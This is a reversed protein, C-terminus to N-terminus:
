KSEGLIDPANQVEFAVFALATSILVIYGTFAALDATKTPATRQCAPILADPDIGNGADPPILAGNSTRCAAALRTALEDVFESESAPDTTYFRVLNVAWHGCRSSDLPTTPSPCECVPPDTDVQVCGAETAAARLANDAAQQSGFFCNRTEIGIASLAAPIEATPCGGTAAAVVAVFATAWAM